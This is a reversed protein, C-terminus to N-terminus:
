HGTLRTGSMHKEPRDVQVTVANIMWTGSTPANLSTTAPGPPGSKGRPTLYFQAAWCYRFAGYAARIFLSSVSISRNSKAARASATSGNRERAANGMTKRVTVARSIASPDWAEKESVSATQVNANIATTVTMM